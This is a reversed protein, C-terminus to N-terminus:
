TIANKQVSYDEFSPPPPPPPFKVNCTQNQTKGAMEKSDSPGPNSVPVIKDQYTHTHM